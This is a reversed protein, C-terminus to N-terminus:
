DSRKKGSFFEVVRQISWLVDKLEWLEDIEKQINERLTEIEKMSM